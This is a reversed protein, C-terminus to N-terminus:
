HREWVYAFFRRLERFGCGRYMQVAHTNATTVTLSIRQAGKSRLTAVAVRLLEYGLGLGQSPPVICLQTIHAVERSVFSTLVIGAVLGTATDHAVFSAPRFFEGCGPFQVINQLFERAGRFDGYQGNIQSDVHDRYSLVMVRAADDGHHDRWTQIRFRDPHVRRGPALSTDADLRMLIREFLRVFRERQLARGTPLDMLMLQSEVRRVQPTAILADLLMRFMRIESEGNRWGPRIYLDGVLGKDEDVVCYGYGAVEGRDVLASGGLSRQDAHKRVLEASPSFDWDLEQSWEVTEEHLVDRLDRASLRRLDIIEPEKPLLEAPVAM